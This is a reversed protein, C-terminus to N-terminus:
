EGLRSRRKAARREKLTRVEQGLLVQFGTTFMLDEFPLTSDTFYHTRTFGTFVKFARFGVGAKLHPEVLFVPSEIVEQIENRDSPMIDGHLLVKSYGLRSFRASLQFHFPGLEFLLGPLMSWRRYHLRSFNQDTSQYYNTIRGNAYGLYSGLQLSTRKDEYVPYYGGALVEWQFLEHRGFEGDLSSSGSFFFRSGIGVHRYPSYALNLEVGQLQDGVTSAVVLEVDDKERLDPLTAANPAYYYRQTCASLVVMLYVAGWIAILAQVQKM